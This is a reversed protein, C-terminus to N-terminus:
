SKWVKSEGSVRGKAHASHLQHLQALVLSWPWSVRSCTRIFPTSPKTWKKRGWLQHLWAMSIKRSCPEHKKCSDILNWEWFARAGSSLDRYSTSTIKSCAIFALRRESSLHESSSRCLFLFFSTISLNLMKLFIFLLVFKDLSFRLLFFLSLRQHIACPM